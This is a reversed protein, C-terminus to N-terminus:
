RDHVDPIDITYTYTWVHLTARVILIRLRISWIVKAPRHVPAAGAVPTIVNGCADTVTPPTPAVAEAPCDVTSAGDTPLDYVDTYRDYLHIDMSINGACDTYTFTYVM